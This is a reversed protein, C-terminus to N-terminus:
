RLVEGGDSNPIILKFRSGNTYSSDYRLDGGLIRVMQKCCPLGLGLGESFIDGKEFTTFLKKQTEENIGPGTDEVEFVVTLGEAKVSIKVYGDTTFKKANYEL